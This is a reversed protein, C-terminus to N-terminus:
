PRHKGAGRAVFARAARPYLTEFLTDVADLRGHPLAGRGELADPLELISLLRQLLSELSEFLADAIGGVLEIRHCLGDGARLLRDLLEFLADVLELLGRGSRVSRAAARGREGVGISAVTPM